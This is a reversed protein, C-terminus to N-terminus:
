TISTVSLYSKARKRSTLTDTVIEIPTNTELSPTHKLLIFFISEVFQVHRSVHTKHNKFNFRIYPSQTLNYDLFICPESRPELKDHTNPKLWPFWLCGFTKLKTYNAPHHFHIQYLTSM